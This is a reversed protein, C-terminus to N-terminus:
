SLGKEYVMFGQDMGAPQWGLREAFRGWGKRGRMTLRDSGCNRAWECFTEECTPLWDKLRAGGCNRIEAEGDATLATTIAAFVTEGDLALWVVEGRTYPKSLSIQAGKALLAEIQPWLPHHEPDPLYAIIM